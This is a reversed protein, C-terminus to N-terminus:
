QKHLQPAIEYQVAHYVDSRRVAFFGSLTGGLNIASIPYHTM